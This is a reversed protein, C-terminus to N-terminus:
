KQLILSDSIAVPLANCAAPMSCLVINCRRTGVGVGVMVKSTCSSISVISLCCTPIAEVTRVSSNLNDQYLSAHKSTCVKV